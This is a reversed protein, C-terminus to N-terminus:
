GGAGSAGTSAPVSAKAPTPAAPKPAPASAKAPKRAASGGAGSAGSMGTTSIPAPKPAPAKVVPKPAPAPAKAPTPAPKAAPAKAPVPKPVATKAAPKSAASQAAKQADDMDATYAALLEEDVPAAPTPAPKPAPAKAPTPKPAPAKTTKAAPAPKPTPAAPKAAPTTPKPAPAAAKAAPAGSIPKLVCPPIPNQTSLNPRIAAIQADTPCDWQMGAPAPPTNMSICGSWKSTGTKPVSFDNDMVFNLPCIYSMGPQAKVAGLFLSSTWNYVSALGNIANAVVQAKQYAALKYALSHVRWTNYIDNSTHQRSAEDSATDSIAIDGGGANWKLWSVVDVFQDWHFNTPIGAINAWNKFNNYGLMFINPGSTIVGPQNPIDKINIFTATNTATPNCNFTTGQSVNAETQATVAYCNNYVDDGAQKEALTDAAQKAAASAYGLAQAYGDPTSTDLTKGTAKQVLAVQNAVLQAIQANLAAVAADADIEHQDPPVAGSDLLSGIMKIKDLQKLAKTAFKVLLQVVRSIQTASERVITNVLVDVVLEVIEQFGQAQPTYVAPLVLAILVLKRTKKMM